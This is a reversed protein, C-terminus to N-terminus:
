RPRRQARVRAQLLVDICTPWAAAEAVVGRAECQASAGAVGAASASSTPLCIGRLMHSGAPPWVSAHGILVTCVVSAGCLFTRRMFDCCAAACAARCRAGLSIAHLRNEMECEAAFQLLAATPDSGASLVFVLPATPSSDAYCDALKFPPAATFKEGMNEAVFDRVAPTVKDPRLARVVLLKQFLKLARFHAPFPQRHPEAADHVARWVDPASTVSNDLGAFATIRSLRRLERWSRDQLWAPAPNPPAHPPDGLGGTLLFTWHDGDLAGRAELIRSTLLFSFLLKDREFLSRCINCYLAFTFHANIHSLRTPITDGPAAASISSLFLAIFWPLSYQYMPDLAALDSICFFLTSTYAGCPKYRCTVSGFEHLGRASETCWTGGPLHPLRRGSSAVCGLALRSFPLVSLVGFFM